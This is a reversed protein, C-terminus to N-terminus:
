DFIIEVCKHHHRQMKQIKQGIANIGCYVENINTEVVCHYHGYLWMIITDKILHDLHSAFCCSAFHGKYKPVILRFSPLHHTLVVLKGM